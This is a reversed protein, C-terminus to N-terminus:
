ETFFPAKNIDKRTQKAWKFMTVRINHCHLAIEGTHRFVDWITLANAPNVVSCYGKLSVINNKSYM